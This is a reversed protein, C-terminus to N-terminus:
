GRKAVFSISRGPGACSVALGHAIAAGLCRYGEIGCSARSAGAPARCDGRRDWSAVIGRGTSCDVGTVRLHSVGGAAGACDRAAAGAPAKSAPANREDSSSSTSTENSSSGCGGVFAMVLSAVLVVVALSLPHRAQGM